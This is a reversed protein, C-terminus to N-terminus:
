ARREIEKDLRRNTIKAAILSVGGILVKKEM